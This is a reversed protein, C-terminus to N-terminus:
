LICCWDFLGGAGSTPSPGGGSHERTCDYTFIQMCKCTFGAEKLAPIAEKEVEKAEVFFRLLSSEIVAQAVMAIEQASFEEGQSTSVHLSTLRAERVYQALAEVGGGKMADPNVAFHLELERLAQLKELAGALQKTHAGTISMETVELYMWELNRLSGMAQCLKQWGHSLETKSTRTLDLKLRRLQKLATLGRALAEYGEDGIKNWAMVLELETLAKCSALLQGFVGMDEGTWQSSSVDIFLRNLTKNSHGVAKSVSEMASGFVGSQRLNLELTELPAIGSFGDALVEMGSPFVSGSKLNLSVHKVGSHKALFQAVGSCGGDRLENSSLDANLRDGDVRGAGDAILAEVEAATMGLVGEM